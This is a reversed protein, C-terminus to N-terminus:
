QLFLPTLSIILLTAMIWNFTLHLRPERFHARLRDGFLTWTALCPLNIVAFVACISLIALAGSQPPAYSSFCAVAMIIAKPNIWQFVVAGLFSVPKVRVANAKGHPVVSKVMTWALYLFYFARIWKMVGYIEPYTKFIEGLGFGIVILMLSFGASVGLLHPLTPRWGFNVGSALLMINNPGPTISSVFAFLSLPILIHIPM